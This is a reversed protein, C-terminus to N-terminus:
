VVNTTKSSM